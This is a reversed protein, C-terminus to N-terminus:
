KENATVEMFMHRSLENHSMGMVVEIYKNFFLEVKLAAIEANSKLELSAADVLTTHVKQIIFTGALLFVFVIPIVIGVFLKIIISKKWFM